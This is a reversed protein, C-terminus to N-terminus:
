LVPIRNKLMQYWSQWRTQRWPSQQQYHQYLQKKLHTSHPQWPKISATYHVVVPRARAALIANKDPKQTLLEDPIDYFYSQVNWHLDLSLWHGDFLVNLVDQDWSNLTGEFSEVFATAQRSLKETRWKALNVLMLGSNFYREQKMPLRAQPNNVSVDTVAAVWYNGLDTQWLPAIDGQFIMDCDLYLVKDLQPPLLDALFLRYYNAYHAHASLPFHAVLTEQFPLVHLQHGGQDFLRRLKRRDAEYLDSCVLYVEFRQKPSHAFLSVCMVGFHQAYAANITCVLPISANSPTM